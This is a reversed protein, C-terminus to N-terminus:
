FIERSVYQRAIGNSDFNHTLNQIYILQLEAASCIQITGEARELDAETNRYLWLQSLSSISNM